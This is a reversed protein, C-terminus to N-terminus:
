KVVLVSQSSTDGSADAGQANITHNGSAAKKTNWNYSLTGTNGSSVLKNDVFLKLSNVGVNDSATVSIVQSPSAVKMNAIPNSITVSTATTDAVKLIIATTKASASNTLASNGISKFAYSQYFYTTDATLGSNTFTTTNSGL